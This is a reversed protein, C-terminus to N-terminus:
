IRSMCWQEIASSRHVTDEGITGEGGEGEDYANMSRKATGYRGGERKTEENGISGSEKCGLGDCKQQAFFLLLQLLLSIFFFVVFIFIKNGRTQACCHKQNKAACCLM